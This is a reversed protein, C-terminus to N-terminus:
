LIDIQHAIGAELCGEGVLIVLFKHDHGYFPGEGPLIKLKRGESRLADLGACYCLTFGKGVEAVFRFIM